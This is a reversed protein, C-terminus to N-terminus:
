RAWIVFNVCKLCSIFCFIFEPNNDNNLINNISNVWLGSYDNPINTQVLACYPTAKMVGDGESDCPVVDISQNYISGADTEINLNITTNAYATNFFYFITFSILSTIIIKNKM